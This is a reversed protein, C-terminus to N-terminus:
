IFRTALENVCAWASGCKGIFTGLLRRYVFLRYSVSFRGIDLSFIEKETRFSQIDHGHQVFKTVLSILWTIYSIDNNKKTSLKDFISDVYHSSADSRDLTNLLLILLKLLVTYIFIWFSKSCIFYVSVATPLMLTNVRYPINHLPGCLVWGPIKGYLVHM